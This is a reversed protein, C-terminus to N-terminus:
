TFFFVYVLFVHIIYLVYIYVCIHVCVRPNWEDSKGNSIKDLTCCSASGVDFSVSEPEERYALLRHRREM